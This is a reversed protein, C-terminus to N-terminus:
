RAHGQLLTVGASSLLTAFEQETREKGGFPAMMEQAIMCHPHRMLQGPYVIIQIMLRRGHGPMTDRYHHLIQM